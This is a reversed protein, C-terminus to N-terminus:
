NKIASFLHRSTFGDQLKIEVKQDEPVMEHALDWGARRCLEAVVVDCDGLMDVDFNVHSVPTRSIYMQPIHAPLYPVVESVPAVKLSTGIVIVLDVLNKDHNTLRESFRDPLAEGFFTIDPKMVGVRPSDDYDEEESSDDNTDFRRRKKESGNQSRKRKMAAPARLKAICQDCKPIRGAKIDPFILEGNVQYQCEVCSATAFSGHCQILKEPLIGAIAEINDINQSYNTLLKGKQQLLHIFAHTPTFRDTSPLIDRAVSYFISPDEKFIRIDFVEQPDNLGLHALKSYLGTDKSRFDPIGLSTSIGAGTLVIINKSKKILEVADDISNYQPLKIRKSLERSIALSLLGYYADDPSGDLFPPPRLGFATLLKKATITGAEVTRRCFEEPGITRLQQRFAVAEELSCSDPHARDFLSEDGLEELTDEFLSEVEDDWDDNSGDEEGSEGSADLVELGPVNVGSGRQAILLADALDSDDDSDILNVVQHGPAKVSAAGSGLQSVDM